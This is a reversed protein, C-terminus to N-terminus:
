SGPNSSGPLTHLFEGGSNGEVINGLESIGAHPRHTAMSMSVQLPEHGPVGGHRLVEVTQRPTVGCAINSTWQFAFLTSSVATLQKSSDFINTTTGASLYRRGRCSTICSAEVDPTASVDPIRHEAPKHRSVFGFDGCRCPRFFVAAAVARLFHRRLAEPPAFRLGLVSLALSLLITAPPKPPVGGTKHRGPIRRAGAVADMVFDNVVREREKGQDMVACQIPAGDRLVSTTVQEQNQFQM